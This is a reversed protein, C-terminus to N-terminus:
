FATYGIKLLIIFFLIIMAAVERFILIHWYFVLLQAPFTKFCLYLVNLWLFPWGQSTYRWIYSGNLRQAFWTMKSGSLQWMSIYLNYSSSTFGHFYLVNPLHIALAHPVWFL